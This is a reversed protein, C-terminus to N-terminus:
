NDTELHKDLKQEIRDIRRDRIALAALADSQSYTHELHREIQQLRRDISNLREETRGYYIGVAVGNAILAVALIVTRLTGNFKGANNEAM